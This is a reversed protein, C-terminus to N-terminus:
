FCCSLFMSEETINPMNSSVIDFSFIGFHLDLIFKGLCGCNPAEIRADESILQMHKMEPTEIVPKDTSRPPTQLGKELKQREMLSDVTPPTPHLTTGKGGGEVKDGTGGQIAHTSSIGHSSMSLATKALGMRGDSKQMITPLMINSYPSPPVQRAMKQVEARAAVGDPHAPELPNLPIKTPAGSSPSSIESPRPGPTSKSGTNEKKVPQPLPALMMTSVSPKAHSFSNGVTFQNTKDPLTTSLSLLSEAADVPSLSKKDPPPIPTGAIGVVPSLIEKKIPIHNNIEPKHPMSLHHPHHPYSQPPISRHAAAAAAAAAAAIEHPDALKQQQQQQQQMMKEYYHREALERAMGPPTHAPTHPKSVSDPTPSFASLGHEKGPKGQEVGKAVKPAPEGPSMKPLAEKRALEQGTKPADEGKLQPQSQPLQPSQQQQQPQQPHQPLHHNPPLHHPYQDSYGNMMQPQAPPANPAAPNWQMVQGNKGVVQNPPAGDSVPVNPLYSM